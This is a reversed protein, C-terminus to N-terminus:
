SKALRTYWASLSGLVRVFLLYGILVSALSVVFGLGCPAPIIPMLSISVLLSETFGSQLDAVM